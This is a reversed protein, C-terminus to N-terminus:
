TAPKRLDYQDLRWRLTDIRDEGFFPENEFVFTPVGWHGSAELAAQNADIEELHNGGAIAAEMEGLDLGARAAAKALHNGQDWDTTGVFLLHSIEYAFEIGLGRRQAEVGLKCLRFIYPQDKAIEFTELNQVIPDPSPWRHSMGLFEARRPWDKQIYRGRKANEANFFGPARVAIPLVVRLNVEVAYDERLKLMGPTALYSYPSRFSWYVDIISPM